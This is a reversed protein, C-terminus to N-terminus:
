RGRQDDDWTRIRLVGWEFWSLLGSRPLSLAWQESGLGFPSGAGCFQSTQDPATADWRMRYGAFACSGNSSALTGNQWWHIMDACGRTVM